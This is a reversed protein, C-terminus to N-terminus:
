RGPRRGLAHLVTTRDRFVFRGIAGPSWSFPPAALAQYLERRAAQIKKTARGGELLEALVLGHRTAVDVAVRRAEGSAILATEEELFPDVVPRDM